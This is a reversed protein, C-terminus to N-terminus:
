VGLFTGNLDLNTCLRLLPILPMQLPVVMLGVVIVFLVSRGPFELWAFAYAAITIPIVVAPITVILSNLFANGMGDSTLVKEYNEVTWQSQEFPHALASWWSTTKIDNAPRLSSVLLGATPLTWLLAIIIVAIRVPAGSFWKRIRDSSTSRSSQIGVGM